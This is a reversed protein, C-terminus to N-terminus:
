QAVRLQTIQTGIAKFATNIQDASTLDFYHQADTACDQLPASNGQTGNLDVFVAYIIAGKDKAAQCALKERANISDANSTWRNQTNLGDSLIILVMTTDKPLTGANYPNGPVLTQLGHIIGITQNTNGNAQMADVADSLTQAGTTDRIDTLPTVPALRISTTTANVCTTTNEAYFNTSTGSPTAIGVDNDQDRDMVCGTWTSHDNKVWTHSYGTTQTCVGSTCTCNSKNKCSSVTTTNPTSNYCGNYYRSARGSNRSGDDAGPCILGSSPVQSVCDSNMWRSSCNPDNTRTGACAYGQSYWSFPCSSGPGLSSSLTPANPPASEWDSWNIWTESVHSTGVNVDKTFPVISVLVDNPHASASQLIGLLNHTASILAAIKTTATKPPNNCPADSKYPQCMSGTNDLVLSVWLKTQGWVVKSSYGVTLSKIGVINMLTTPMSVSTSLVVTQDSTVVNVDAPIGFSPDATYNAKFYARALSTIQDNTLNQTAGIALGAADLAEAVRARVMLARSLDLGAGAAVTIPILSLAFIMAVNGRRAHAFQKLRVQFARWTKKLQM